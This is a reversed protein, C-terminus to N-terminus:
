RHAPRDVFLSLGPEQPCYSRCPENGLDLVMARLGAQAVVSLELHAESNPISEGQPGFAPDIRGGPLIGLLRQNESDSFGGVAFTTGDDGLAAASVPIPLARVGGTGFSRHLRGNPELRLTFGRNKYTHTSVWGLLDIERNPRVLVATVLNAQSGLRDAARLSRRAARDFHRDLRGKASVRLVFGPANIGCCGFGALYVGGNPASASSLIGDTAYRVRFTASGGNGFGTDLSGDPRLRTLTYIAGRPEGDPAFNAFAIAM